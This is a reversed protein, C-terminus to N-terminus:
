PADAGEAGATLTDAAAAEPDAAAAEPNAVTGSPANGTPTLQEPVSPPPADAEARARVEGLRIGYSEAGDGAEDQAALDAYIEEAAAYDGAYEYLRARAARARRRQYDHRAAEALRDYWRAAAEHDGRQEEAAAMMWGANYGIPHHDLDVVPQLLSVARAVSDQDLEMEALLLRAEDAQRTSGFQEVYTGLQARLQAPTTNRSSLRIEDLRVAARQRLDSRYNAYVFGAGIAAVLAILALTAIRNNEQVWVSARAVREMVRDHTDVAGDGSGSRGSNTMM